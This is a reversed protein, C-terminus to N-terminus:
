RHLWRHVVYAMLAVFAWRYPREWGAVVHSWDWIALAAIMAIGASPLYLKYPFLDFAYAHAIPVYMIGMWVVCCALLRWQRRVLLYASGWFAMAHLLMDGTQPMLLMWGSLPMTLLGSTAGWPKGLMFRIPLTWFRRRHVVAAMDERFFFGRVEFRWALYLVVVVGMGLLPWIARKWESPPRTLVMWAVLLAPLVLAHEKALLAPALLAASLV